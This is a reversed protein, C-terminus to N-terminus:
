WNFLLGSDRDALLLRSSTSFSYLIFSTVLDYWYVFLNVFFYARETRVIKYVKVGPLARQM